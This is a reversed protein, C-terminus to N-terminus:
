FSRRNRASEAFWDVYIDTSVTDFQYDNVNTFDFGRSFKPLFYMTSVHTIQFPKVNFISRGGM